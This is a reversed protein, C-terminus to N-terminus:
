WDIEVNMLPAHQQAGFVDTDGIDGSAVIRKMTIKFALASDYFEVVSIDEVPVSYVKAIKEKTIIGCEKMKQYTKPDDFIVDFTVEYPGSNKSRLIKAKDYLLSKSM